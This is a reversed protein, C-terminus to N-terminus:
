TKTYRCSPWPQYDTYCRDWLKEDMPSGGSLMGHRAMRDRRM